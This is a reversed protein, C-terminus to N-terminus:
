MIFSKEDTEGESIDIWSESGESSIESTPTAHTETTGYLSNTKQDSSMTSISIISENLDSCLLHYNNVTKTSFIDGLDSRHMLTPTLPTPQLLSSGNNRIKEYNNRKPLPLDPPTNLNYKIQIPLELKNNPRPPPPEPPLNLIEDYGHDMKNKPKDVVLEYNSDYSEYSSISNIDNNDILYNVRKVEDISQYISNTDDVTSLSGTEINTKAFPKEYHNDSSTTQPTNFSRDNHKSKLSIIEYDNEDKHYDENIKKILNDTDYLIQSTILSNNLNEDSNTNSPITKYYHLNEHSVNFQSSHSPFKTEDMSQTKNILSTNVAQIIKQGSIINISSEFSNRSMSRFLFSVNPELNTNCSPLDTESKSLVDIRHNVTDLADLIKHDSNKFLKENKKYKKERSHICKESSVKNNVDDIKIDYNIQQSDVFDECTNVNDIENSNNEKRDIYTVNNSSSKNLNEDSLRNSNSNNVLNPIKLNIQENRIPVKPKLPLKKSEFDNEFKKITDLIKNTNTADTLQTDVTPQSLRYAKIYSKNRVAKNDSKACNSKDIENHTNLIKYIHTPTRLVVGNNQKVKELLKDDKNILENFKKTLMSVKNDNGSLIRKSQISTNTKFSLKRDNKKPVNQTVDSKYSVANNNRNIKTAFIKMDNDSNNNSVISKNLELECENDSINKDINMNINDINSFCNFFSDLSKSLDVKDNIKFNEVKIASTDEIFNSNNKIDVIEIKNTIIENNECIYNSYRYCKPLTTSSNSKLTFNKQAIIKNNWFDKLKQVNHSRVESEAILKSKLDLEKKIHFDNHYVRKNNHNIVPSTTM